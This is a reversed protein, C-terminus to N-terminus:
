SVAMTSAKVSDVVCVAKQMNHINCIRVTAHYASTEQGLSTERLPFFSM